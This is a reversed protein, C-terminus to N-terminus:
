PGRVIQVLGLVGEAGGEGEELPAVLLRAQLRPKVVEVRGIQPGAPFEIERERGQVDEMCRIHLERVGIQRAFRESGLRDVEVVACLRLRGDHGVLPRHRQEVPGAVRLQQEEGEVVM